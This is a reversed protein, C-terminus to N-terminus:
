SVEPIYLIDSSLLMSLARSYEISSSSIALEYSPNRGAHASCVEKERGPGPNGM